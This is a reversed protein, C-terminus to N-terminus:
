HLLDSSAGSCYSVDGYGGRPIYALNFPLKEDSCGNVCSPQDASFNLHEPSLWRSATYEMRTYINYSQAELCRGGDLCDLDNLCSRANNNSCVGKVKYGYVHSGMPCIFDTAGAEYHVCTDPDYIRYDYDEGASGCMVFGNLPDVPLSMGLDNGLTSVWSPWASYCEGEVYTGSALKPYHGNIAKYKELSDAMKDLDALRRVDRILRQKSEPDTINANFEWNNFLRRYIEQTEPNAGESISILYINTYVPGSHTDFNPDNGASVYVTQEAKAAKYGDVDPFSDPSYGFTERVWKEPSWHSKNMEVKIGLAGATDTICAEDGYCGEECSKGPHNECYARVPLMYSKITTGPDCSSEITGDEDRDGESFFCDADDECSDGPNTCDDGVCHGIKENEVLILEPLDDETGPDGRDRCYRIKFNLSPDVFAGDAPWPNDCIFVVINATARKTREYARVDVSLTTRGNNNTIKTHVESDSSIPDTTFDIINTDGISWNYSEVAIENDGIDYATARFQIETDKEEIDKLGFVPHNVLYWSGSSDCSSTEGLCYKMEVKDIECIQDEIDFQWSIDSALGQGYINKIGGDLSIKYFQLRWSGEPPSIIPWLDGEEPSIKVKTRDIKGDGNSDFDESALKISIPHTFSAEEPSVPIAVFEMKINVTTITAPDILQNFTLSIVENRCPLTEGNNPHREAISIVGPDRECRCWYPNCLLPDDCPPNSSSCTAAGRPSYHSPDPNNCPDGEEGGGVRIQGCTGPSDSCIATITGSEDTLSAEITTESGPDAGSSVEATTTLSPTDSITAVDPNTSSWNYEPVCISVDEDPSDRHEWSSALFNHSQGPYLRVEEAPSVKIYDVECIRNVVKFSWTCTNEDENWIGPCGAGHYSVGDNSKIGTGDTGGTLTVKYTHGSTLNCNQPFLEISYDGVNIADLLIDSESTEDYLEVNGSVSRADIAAARTFEIKISANRCVNSDSVSPSVSEIVPRSVCCRDSLRCGIEESITADGGCDLDGECGCCLGRNDGTCEGAPTCVLDGGCSDASIDCCCRCDSTSSMCEMPDSCVDTGTSCYGIGSINCEAGPGSPWSIEVHLNAPDCTIDSIGEISASIQTNGNNVAEATTEPSTTSSVVTAVSTDSSEWNYTVTGRIVIPEGGCNDSSSTIARFSKTERPSRLTWESPQIELRDVQCEEETDKTKFVWSYSDNVGNDDSDYNLDGLSRGDSSTIGEKVIVRYKSNPNLNSSPKLNLIKSSPSHIEFEVEDVGTFDDCDDDDERCPFVDINENTLTSGDMPTSFEVGIATNICAELCSPWHNVIYPYDVCACGSDPDCLQHGSCSGRDCTPTTPDTDCPDGRGCPSKFLVRNTWKGNIKAFYNFTALDHLGFTELRTDSWSEIGVEVESVERNSFYIRRDGSDGFGMGIITVRDEERGCDPDLKCIGPGLDDIYNFKVLNSSRQKDSKDSPDNSLIQIFGSGSTPAEEPVLIIIQNNTWTNGCEDPPPEGEIVNGEPTIFKVTGSNGFNSGSITIMQGPGGQPGRDYGSVSNIHPSKVVFYPSYAVRGTGAPEVRIQGNIAGNTSGPPGGAPVRVKIEGMSWSEICTRNPNFYGSTGGDFCFNDAYVGDNFIVEGGLGLYYGSITIQDSHYGESPSISTIEPDCDANEGTWFSWVYDDDPTGDFVGNPTNSPGGQGDLPNGCIDRIGLNSGYGGDRWEETNPGSKATATYNHNRLYNTQPSFSALNFEIGEAGGVERRSFNIDPSLSFNAEDQLTFIDM